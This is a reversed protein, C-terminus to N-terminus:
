LLSHPIRALLKQKASGHQKFKQERTKADHKNRYLEVYIYKWTGQVRTTYKTGRNNHTTLRAKLDTTYGIYLEKTVDNQIVYVAHM